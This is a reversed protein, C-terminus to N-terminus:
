TRHPGHEKRLYQGLAALKSVWHLRHADVWAEVEALPEAQLRYIRQRGLRRESVLGARKLVNLQQSLAPASAKFGQILQTVSREGEELQELLRRRSPHALAQFVDAHARRRNM